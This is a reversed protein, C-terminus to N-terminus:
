KKNLIHQFSELYTVYAPDDYFPILLKELKTKIEKIENSNASDKAEVILKYYEDAVKKMEIFRESRNAEKVGMEGEAIEEIGFKLYDDEMNKGQLDILENNKLSQVIFPSHTTTIFQIKPFTDKLKKVITRQWKPHLHLDLEDILVIGESEKAANLELYPNLLVCRYAIDAVIGVINRQGDSLYTFPLIEKKNSHKVAMLQDEEIGFFITEWGELCKTVARKIVQARWKATENGQLLSLEMTKFWAAFRKISSTSDLCNYYGEYRSGKPLTKLSKSPESFLRGCGLYDFVPLLINKGGNESLTSFHNRAISRIEKDDGQMFGFDFHTKKIVWELQKGDIEGHVILATKIKKEISHGFTEVRVDEKRIPRVNRSQSIAVYPNIAAALAELVSTKGTGNEGILVNFSSNFEFTKDEIGRFDIIRISHIKM